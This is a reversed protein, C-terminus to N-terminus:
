NESLGERAPTVRYVKGSKLCQARPLRCVITCRHEFVNLHRWTVDEVHDYCRVAGNEVHISRAARWLAETEEVRLQVGGDPHFGIKVVRWATGLHLLEHFHQEPTMGAAMFGKVGAAWQFCRLVLLSSNPGSCGSTAM